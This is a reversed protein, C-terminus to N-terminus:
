TGFLRQAIPETVVAARVLDVADVPRWLREFEREGFREMNM